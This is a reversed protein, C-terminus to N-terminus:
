RGFISSIFRKVINEKKFEFKEGVLDAALKRYAMAASSNPKTLIVPRRKAVSDIM